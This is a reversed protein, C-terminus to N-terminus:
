ATTRLTAFTVLREADSFRPHCTTLTLMPAASGLPDDGLVWTDGPGVIREEVVEYIWRRQARDTVHVEDGPELQDLNFFPAGYTTRHGAVAFNGAEGPLATNPYHGPGRRLSPLSVDAIVFLPEARVVPGDSGPRVFQLAAVAEGPTIPEGPEQSTDQPEGVVVDGSVEGVELNWEELLEAQAQETEYNTFVLAYVLYLAVVVGATISTWGAVRLIRLGM